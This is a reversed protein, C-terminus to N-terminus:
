ASRQGAMLRRCWESICVADAVGDHAKRARPTMQLSLGPFRRSCYAVSLTKTDKAPPMGAFIHKQWEQPRPLEVPIGLTTLVGRVMGYGVGFSFVACVGQGPRSAVRELAACGVNHSAKRARLWNVLIEIDVESKGNGIKLTPMPMVSVIDGGLTMAALGGSLGPDIGIVVSVSQGNMATKMM